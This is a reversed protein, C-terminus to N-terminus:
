KLGTHIKRNSKNLYNLIVRNDKNLYKKTVSLIYDATILSYKNLLTNIQNTDKFFTRFHALNDAKGINTQLSEIMITELKNKAKELEEETVRQTQLKEIEDTVAKEIESPNSDIYGMCSIIILGGLENDWIFSSASKALRKEYVIKSYLRSSRSEGLITTLLGLAPSEKSLIGPIKYAIYIGPVQISDYITDKIEGSSYKIRPFNKKNTINPQIKGFYKNVLELANRNEIDGSISIVANSPSYYIKYFNIADELAANNLDEMSGIPVWEYPEGKFARNFLNSWKSGYPVNDCVQRKEEKVVDRQNDFNEQNVNLYGMRDSELWLVLELQNSPVTEYYNTRDQDTSGNLIGGAHQIYRFHEAKSINESGQFMMHEFLHAFGTKGPDEDKSGVHYWLDVSVLPNSSDKHLIVHLGNDLSHETFNINAIDRAASISNNQM